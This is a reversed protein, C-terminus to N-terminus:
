RAPLKSAIEPKLHPRLASWPIFVAPRQPLKEGRTNERWDPYLRIGDKWLLMQNNLMAPYAGPRSCNANIGPHSALYGLVSDVVINKWLTDAFLGHLDVLQPTGGPTQMVNMYTYRFEYWSAAGNGNGFNNVDVQIAMLSDTAFLVRKRPQVTSERYSTISSGQKFCRCDSKSGPVYTRYDRQGSVPTILAGFLWKYHWDHLKGIDAVEISPLEIKRIRNSGSSRLSAPNHSALSQLITRYEATDRSLTEGPLRLVVFDAASNSLVYTQQQPNWATMFISTYVTDIILTGDPNYVGTKGSCTVAAYYRKADDLPYLETYRPPISVALSQVDILGVGTTTVMASRGTLSSLPQVLHLATDIIMKQARLNYACWREACTVGRSKVPSYCLWATDGANFSTKTWVTDVVLRGTSDAFGWRGTLTRLIYFDSDAPRHAYEYSRPPVVVYGSPSIIGTGTKRNGFHFERDFTRGPSTHWVTQSISDYVLLPIPDHRQNYYVGPMQYLSYGPTHLRERHIHEVAISPQAERYLLFPYSAAKLQSAAQKPTPQRREHQGYFNDQVYQRFLLLTDTEPPACGECYMNRAYVHGSINKDSGYWQRLTAYQIGIYNDQPLYYARVCDDPSWFLMSGFMTWCSDYAFPLLTDGLLNLLGYKGKSQASCLSYQLLYNGNEQVANVSLSEFSPQVLWQKEPGFIGWKGNLRVEWFPIAKQWLNESPKRISDFLVPVLTDGNMAIVGYRNGSCVATYGFHFMFSHRSYQVDTYSWIKSTKDVVKRFSADYYSFRGNAFAEYGQYNGRSAEIREYEAPVVIEGKDTVLGYLRKEYSRSRDKEYPIWETKFFSFVHPSSPKPEEMIRTAYEKGDPHIFSWYFTEKVLFVSDTCCGIESYRCPLIVRGSTDVIGSGNKESVKLFQATRNTSAISNDCAFTLTNYKAEVVEKGRENLLGWKGNRLARAFGNKFPDIQTYVPQTIWVGSGNKLGMTCSNYDKVILPTQARMAFPLLLAICTILLACRVAVPSTSTTRHKM